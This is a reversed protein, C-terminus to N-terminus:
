QDLYFGTKHGTAIDVKFAMEHESIKIITQALTGRLVGTRPELGELSRVDADSREYITTLGTLELLLDLLTERWLEPGASLFQVVLTDGYQDVILGPLGDSEAHVLRLADTQARYPARATIARELRRRLFDADVSEEPDFSWARARIQSHPSYAARALFEGTNALVDITAGMGPEGQSEAIAGSFVWPHRRLLSREREPQLILRPNQEPM